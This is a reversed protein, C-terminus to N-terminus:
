RRDEDTPPPVDDYPDSGGRSTGSGNSKEEIFSPLTGHFPKNGAEFVMAYQKYNPDTHDEFRKIGVRDGPVPKYDDFLGCLVTASIWLGIVEGTPDRAIHAIPKPGYRTHAVHYGTLEGVLIEGVELDITDIDGAGEPKDQQDLEDQLDRM